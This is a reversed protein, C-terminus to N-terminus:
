TPSKMRRMGGSKKLAAERREIGFGEPRTRPKTGGIVAPHVNKM